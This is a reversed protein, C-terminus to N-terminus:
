YMDGGFDGGDGYGGDYGPGDASANGYMQHNIVNAAVPATIGVALAMGMNNNRPPQQQHPRGVPPYGGYQQQYFQPPYGEYPQQYFRPPYGQPPYGQYPQYFQPQYGQYPQYLQPPYGQYPQYFQPPYGQYPQLYGQHLPYAPQPPYPYPPLLYQNGNPPSRYGSM